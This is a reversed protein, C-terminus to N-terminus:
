VLFKGQVVYIEYVTLVAETCILASTMAPLWTKTSNLPVLDRILPMFENRLLNIKKQTKGTKDNKWLGESMKRASMITHWETITEIFAATPLAERPMWDKEVCTRLAAVVQTM